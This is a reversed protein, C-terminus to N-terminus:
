GARCSDLATLAGPLTGRYLDAADGKTWWTQGGGVYRAGSASVQVSMEVGRGNVVVSARQGTYTAEIRTGGECVYRIVAPGGGGAHAPSSSLLALLLATTRRNIPGGTVLQFPGHHCGRGSCLVGEPVASQFPTAPM